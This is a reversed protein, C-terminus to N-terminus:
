FPKKPTPGNNNTEQKPSYDIKEWKKLYFGGSQYEGFSARASCKACAAEYFEFSKGANETGEKGKAVRYNLSVEKSKCLGCQTAQTFAGAEKIAEKFDRGDFELQADGVNIKIKM